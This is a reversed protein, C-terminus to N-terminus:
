GAGGGNKVSVQDTQAKEGQAAALPHGGVVIGGKFDMGEPLGVGHTRRGEMDGHDVIHGAQDGHVFATRDYAQDSRLVRPGVGEKVTVGCEGVVFRLRSRQCSKGGKCVRQKERRDAFFLGFYAKKGLVQQTPHGSPFFVPSCKMYLVYFGFEAEITGGGQVVVTFGVSSIVV